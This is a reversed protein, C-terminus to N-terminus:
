SHAHKRDKNKGSSMVTDSTAYAVPTNGGAPQIIRQADISLAGAAHAMMCSVLEADSLQCQEHIQILGFAPMDTNSVHLSCFSLM